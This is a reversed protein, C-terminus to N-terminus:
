PQETEETKVTFKPINPRYDTNVDRMPMIIATRTCLFDQIVIPETPGSVFFNVRDSEPSVGSLAELLFEKNVSFCLTANKAMEIVTNFNKHVKQTDCDCIADKKNHVIHMRFGDAAVHAHPTAYKEMDPNKSAALKLWEEASMEEIHKASLIIIEM